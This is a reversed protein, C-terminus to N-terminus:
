LAGSDLVARLAEVEWDYLLRGMLDYLYEREETTTFVPDQSALYVEANRRRGPPGEQGERGSKRPYHRLGILYGGRGRCGYSARISGGKGGIGGVGPSSIVHLEQLFEKSEKDLLMVFVNGGDGGTGGDGGHINPQAIRCRRWISSAGRGGPGGRGGQSQVTLGGIQHSEFDLVITPGTRGSYGRRPAKSRRFDRSGPQGPEGVSGTGEIRVGEGIRAHKARIFLMRTGPTIQVVANDELTLTELVLYVLMRKELTLTEGAAVSIEKQVQIYTSPASQAEGEQVGCLFLVAFLATTLNTAKPVFMM